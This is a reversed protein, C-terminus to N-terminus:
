SQRSHAQNLSAGLEYRLKFAGKKWLYSNPAERVMWDLISVIMRIKIRQM